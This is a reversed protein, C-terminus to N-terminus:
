PNDDISAYMLSDRKPEDSPAMEQDEGAAIDFVDSACFKSNLPPLIDDLSGNEKSEEEDQSEETCFTM